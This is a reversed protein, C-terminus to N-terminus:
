QPVIKYIANSMNAVYLEGEGDEGFSTLNGPVSFHTVAAGTRQGDEVVFSKVSGGNHQGYFFRGCLGPIKNGRYVFGGIIAAGNSDRLVGDNVDPTGNNDRYGYDVGSIGAGNFIITGGPGNAEDGIYMDGTLRDITMRYPNRLGYAYTTYGKTAVDIRLVRGVTGDVDGANNSETNGVSFFMSQTDDTPDFTISGGNHFAGSGERANSYVNRVFSATTVSTRSFEDITLDSDTATYFLYFLQNSAFDPHLAMSLLGQENNGGSAVDVHVLPEAAVIGDQVVFVNGDRHGIVYLLDGEGPVGVIQGATQMGDFGTIASSLKLAPVTEAPATSCPGLIGPNGGAGGSSSGSEGGVGSHGSGGLQGGVGADGGVGPDGGAGAGGMGSGGSIGFEGGTGPDGGTAAQGNGATGSTGGSGGTGGTSMEGGNGGAGGKAASVTPMPKWDEIGLVSECGFAGAILAVALRAENNLRM